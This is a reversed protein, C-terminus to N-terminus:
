KKMWEKFPQLADIYESVDEVEQPTLPLEPMANASYGFARYRTSPSEIYRAIDVRKRKYSVLNFDPGMGGKMAVSHCNACNQAYVDKGAEIDAHLTLSLLLLVYFLKM